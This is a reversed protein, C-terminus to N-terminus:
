FTYFVNYGIGEFTTENNALRIAYAPTDQLSAAADPLWLALKSGGLIAEPLTITATYEKSGKSTVLRVDGLEALETVGGSAHVLVLKMPRKNIVSAAGANNLTLKVQMKSGAATGGTFTVTAKSLWLRYGLAKRIADLGGEAKWRKIFEGKSGDDPDGYLYSINEDYLANLTSEATAYCFSGPAPAGEWTYPDFLKDFAAKDKADAMNFGNMEGGLALYPSQRRWMRRDLETEFTGWDNSAQIGTVPDINKDKFKSRFGDNHFTVRDEDWGTINTWAWRHRDVIYRKYYPTRLAVQRSAPVAALLATLVEGRGGDDTMLNLNGESGAPDYAFMFPGFHSTFGPYWNGWTGLFGAQVVYIIDEYETFIPTLDAIHNLVRNKVPNTNVATTSTTYAFRIIVKKGRARIDDLVSRINALAAADINDKTVFGTLYFYIHVLSNDSLLSENLGGSMNGANDFTFTGPAYFGREPNMIDEDSQTFSLRITGLVIPPLVAIRNKAVTITKLSSNEYLTYDDFADLLSIRSGAALTGAPFPVYFHASGNRVDAYFTLSKEAESGASAAAWSVSAADGTDLGTLPFLGSMKEGASTFVFKVETTSTPIGSFSFKVAGTMNAFAFEQADDGWAFMPIATEAHGGESARFDREAPLHFGITSGDTFVHSASAPYLAPKKGGLSGIHTDASVTATLPSTAAADSATFTEWVDASGNNCLISVQDGASWSFTKDDAYSTKTVEGRTAKVSLVKQGDPLEPADDTELATNCAALAFVALIAWLIYTSKM